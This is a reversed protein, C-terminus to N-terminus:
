RPETGSDTAAGMLPLTQGWLPGYAPDSVAESRARGSGPGCGNERVARIGGTRDAPMKTAAADARYDRLGGVLDAMAQSAASEAACAV